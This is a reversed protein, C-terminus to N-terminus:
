FPRKPPCELSVNQLLTLTTEAEKGRLVILSQRGEKSKIADFLKVRDTDVLNRPHPM